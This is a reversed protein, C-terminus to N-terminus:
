IGVTSEKCDVGITSSLVESKNFRISSGLLGIGNGVGAVAVKVKRKIGRFAETDLTAIGQQKGAILTPIRDIHMCPIFLPIEGCPWAIRRCVNALITIIFVLISENNWFSSRTNHNVVATCFLCM